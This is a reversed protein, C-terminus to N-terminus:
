DALATTAVIRESLGRKLSGPDVLESLLVAHVPTKTRHEVWRVLDDHSREVKLVFGLRSLRRSPKASIAGTAQGDTPVWSELKITRNGVRLKGNGFTLSDNSTKRDALTGLMGTGWAGFTTPDSEFVRKAERESKPFGSLSVQKLHVEQRVRALSISAALLSADIGVWQRGLREAAVVTTGTGCFPDVVLDGPRTSASVIRELLALPKQTDYGVREDSHADLRNIDTWIDQIPVGAGDDTYRKLRPVGNSSHVLRGETEFAEMQETKWAWHRGPPPYQGRWSYHARTGTRDGPATCTILQYRGHEDTHTFHKEIYSAQYESFVPNWTYKQSKSFFLIVDHVPGYRRSSSHAHTRKWIIENRFNEPGFLQDLILKLYHSAAPDCHLYLSGTESLLRHAAGLRSAMMVLYAALDSQRLSKALDGVMSVAASPLWEGVEQFAAETESSWMWQDDFAGSRHRRGAGRPAVIADYTRGSNFPPDLYILEASGFALSALAELNDDAVLSRTRTRAM